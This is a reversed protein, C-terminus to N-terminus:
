REFFITKTLIYGAPSTIYLRGEDGPNIIGANIIFTGADDAYINFEKDGPLLLLSIKSRPRTRGNISMPRLYSKLTLDKGKLVAGDISLEIEPDQEFFVTRKIESENGGADKVKVIIVNEGDSLSVPCSFKGDSGSSIEKGNIQLNLGSETEGIVSISMKMFASNEGPEKLVLYPKYKDKIVIVSRNNGFKGPLGNKDITAVHWYYIGPNTNKLIFSTDTISKNSYYIERFQIDKALEVWYFNADKVNLWSFIIDPSYFEKNPEPGFLMPPLLISIPKTPQGTRPIISGQNELVKVTSDKATIEITGEYNAFKTNAENKEVWFSRSKIDTKLGPVDIDFKKKPNKMLYAFADGKIMKITSETRNNIINQKSRQIVAQSNENLRIRSLDFFTIEALSNSLTRAHDTEFLQKYLEADNWTFESQRRSQVEGKRFTLLAGATKISLRQTEEFVLVAMEESEKALLISSNLDGKKKLILSKELINVANKLKDSLIVNAGITTANEIAINASKIKTIADNYPGVPIKLTMGQKIDSASTLNNYSLIIEWEDPSDFYKKSISRLNDDPGVIYEVSRRQQAFVVSIFLLFVPFIKFYYKM